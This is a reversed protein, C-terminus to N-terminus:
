SRQLGAPHSAATAAPRTAATVAGSATTLSVSRHVDPVSPGTRTRRRSEQKSTLRRCEEQRRTRTLIILLSAKMLWPAEPGGELSPLLRLLLLWDAPQNAPQGSAGWSQAELGLGPTSAGGASTHCLGAAGEAEQSNGTLVNAEARTRTRASNQWRNRDGYCGFM